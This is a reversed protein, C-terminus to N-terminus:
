RSERLLKLNEQRAPQLLGQALEEFQHAVFLLTEREEPTQALEAHRRAFAAQARYAAQLECEPIATDETHPDTMGASYDDCFERRCIQRPMV